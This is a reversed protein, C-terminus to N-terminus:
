KVFEKVENLDKFKSRIKNEIEEKNIGKTKIIYKLITDDTIKSLNCIPCICAPIYGETCDKIIEIEDSTFEDKTLLEKFQLIREKAWSCTAHDVIYEQMMLKLNKVSYIEEDIHSECIYHGNICEVMNADSLSMDYGAEVTGCFSCIFSSSSSNSVFGNRIKM